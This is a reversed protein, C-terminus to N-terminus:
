LHAREHMAAAAMVIARWDDDSSAQFHRVKELFQPGSMM